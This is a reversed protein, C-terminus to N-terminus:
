KRSEPSSSSALVADALPLLARPAVPAGNGNAQYRILPGGVAGDRPDSRVSAIRAVIVSM